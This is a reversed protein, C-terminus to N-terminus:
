GILGFACLRLALLTLVSKYVLLFQREDLRGLLWKGTYTGAVVAASMPAMWVIYEGYGFDITGFAVIKVLHLLTSCAAHTAIMQYRDYGRGLLFPAILPGVAGVVVGLVGGLMGGLAFATREGLVQIGRRPMWAAILTVVGLLFKIRDADVRDVLWLGLVPGPIAALTFYLVARPKVNGAHAFLRSANAAVQVVAHVPIAVMLDLGLLVMLVLLLVGGAMGVFGSVTAGLYACLTLLVTM